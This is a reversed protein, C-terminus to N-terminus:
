AGLGLAQGGTADTGRCRGRKRVGAAGSQPRPLRRRRPATGSGAATAQAPRQRGSIGAAADSGGACDLRLRRCLRATAAKASAQTALLEAWLRTWISRGLFSCGARTGPELVPGSYRARPCPGLVLYQYYRAKTKQGLVPNQYRVRTCPGLVPSYNRAM